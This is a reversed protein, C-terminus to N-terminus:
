KKNLNFLRDVIRMFEEDTVVTTSQWQTLEDVLIRTIELRKNEFYIKPIKRKM